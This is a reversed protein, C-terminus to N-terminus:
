NLPKAHEIDTTSAFKMEWPGTGHLQITTEESGTWLYHNSRAPLFLFSGAPYAAGKAQDLKEGMGANLTGSIVTVSGDRTLAHAAVKYNAPFKLRITYAGASKPDGALVALQAGSPLSAPGPTWKLDTPTFLAHGDKNSQIQVKKDPPQAPLKQEQKKQDEQATALSGGMLAATVLLALGLKSLKNM